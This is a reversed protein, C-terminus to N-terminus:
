RGNIKGREIIEVTEFSLRGEEASLELKTMSKGYDLITQAVISAIDEIDLGPIWSDYAQKQILSM